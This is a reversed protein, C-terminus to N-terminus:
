LLDNWAPDTYSNSAFVNRIKELRIMKLCDEEIEQIEKWHSIKWNLEEWEKVIWDERNTFPGKQIIM